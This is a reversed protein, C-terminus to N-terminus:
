SFRSELVAVRERLGAIEEDRRKIETRLEGNVAILTEVSISTSEAGAKRFTVIAGVFGGSLIASMLAVVAPSMRTEGFLLSALFM